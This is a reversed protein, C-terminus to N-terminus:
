SDEHKRRLATLLRALERELRHKVTYVQPISVHLHRSVKMASWQKVAHLHFIQYHKPDTTRKLRELAADVLNREWDAEWREDLRASLPDPIDRVAFSGDDSDALRVVALERLRRRLQDNIRWKTLNLLWRKFSGGEAAPRYRFDPMQKAVSLITEQVIDESETPSLGAARATGYILKWYTDFFEQWSADDSWLRLRELLSARTPILEDREDPMEPEHATM